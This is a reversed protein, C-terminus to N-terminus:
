KSAVDAKEREEVHKRLQKVAGIRATKPSWSRGWSHKESWLVKGSSPQVVDLITYADGTSVTGRVHANAIYQRSTNDRNSIRFILDADKPDDVVRFRGWKNLEERCPVVYDAPNLNTQIYVTKAQMLEAPMPPDAALVGVPVGVAVLLLLMLFVRRM